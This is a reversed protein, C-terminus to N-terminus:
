ADLWQDSKQIANMKSVSEGLSWFFCVFEERTTEPM